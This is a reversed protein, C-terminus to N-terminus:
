FMIRLGLAYNRYMPEAGVRIQRKEADKSLRALNEGRLYLILDKSFIKSVISKPMEFSLQVRDLTFYDNRYLWFTSGRFNNLSSKSTLRPYTATSATEPTWRNLVEESYKDTGDVWFYASSYVADSGYRGNGLAFLSLAKYKLTLNIGYFIRAKDLNGIQIEDDANIKEDGNQDKYKIDGPKVEGFEQVPSNDIDGPSEFFGLAELGFMADVARGQRYQYANSWTEDRTIVKTNYFLANAGLTFSFNGLNETWNIGLEAGKYDTVEFNEYPYLNGVYPAYISRRVVQGSNRTYFANVDVFVSRDFFYGELGANINKMKEFTLDPNSSRSILTRKITRTGDNWAFNSGSEFANEYLRYNSGTFEYNTIGASARLKLYDILSKESKDTVIWALGLSPSFGGKHGKQLKFGNVLANSFDVFYKKKYDYTVRLALHSDKEDIIVASTTLNDFYGLFTATVSHDNFTRAYDLTAYTGFRRTYGGDTIIQEGSSEDTGIINLSSISDKGSHSSWTPQYVAYKNEVSEYFANYIDLSVLTKFTLGKTIGKLDINLGTNFRATRRISRTYGALFMNGYANDMYQSTGGLIYGKNIIEANALDGGNPWTANSKIMSVPLLPSFYEPHLTSANSWFNGRPGKDGEIIVLADVFSKIYNNVKFDVNGRINFRDYRADSGTGLNYLSGSSVWGVTAYYQTIDNGGSFESLLKTYPKSSRLYESSYYDVSPYKYPNTGAAYHAITTDAYATPLGDNALAENYLQMYQASGLYKPFVIPKAMGKEVSINIKRKYAQGRKTTIIIVGNKAQTGWLASANGDKLVTIQEVEELNIDSADRPFGDVIFIANGIGRINTNGLLGPVRARIADFVYQSNDYKIIEETNVASVAGVLERKKAKGFAINVTSNDDMLFLTKKMTIKKIDDNIIVIADNYGKAELLLKSNAPVEIVFKGESDSLVEISGEKGSIVADPIPTGNEDVVVSEFKILQEHPEQGFAKGAVLGLFLMIILFPIYKKNMLKLYYLHSIM